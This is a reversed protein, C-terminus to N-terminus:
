PNFRALGRDTDLWLNNLSDVLISSISNGPLGDKTSYNTFHKKIPDYRDLGSGMTGFWMIGNHDEMACYIDISSLSNRNESYRLNTFKIEQPLTSFDYDKLNVISVGNTTTIYLNQKSDEYIGHLTNNCLSTTDNGNYTYHYFRETKRDFLDLGDSLNGVWLNQKSDEFVNWVNRSAIALSNSPDPLYTKFNGDKMRALGGHYTGMWLTGEHDECISIIANSSITNAKGNDYEYYTFKDSKRDLKNLGGGDTGIWIVNDKGEAFCLINNFGLKDALNANSFYRKFKTKGPSYKNIGTITGIWMHGVKDCHFCNVKNTLISYPNWKDAQLYSFTGIKKDLITIGESNRDGIWINGNTDEALAFLVKGNPGLGNISSKYLNFTNGKVKFYLMGVDEITIFLDGSSDKLMGKRKNSFKDAEPHKIQYAIFKNKARDFYNLKSSYSALWIKGDQDEAMALVNKRYIPDTDDENIEFSEAHIIGRAIEPNNYIKFRFVELSSAAVWLYGKSDILCTNLYYDILQMEDIFIVKRSFYDRKRDYMCLGNSTMVWINGNEDESLNNISSGPLSTTDKPDFYYNKFTIGDFRNLGNSTGIWVFGKSDHLITTIYGNSLGDKTTYRDFEINAPLQGAVRIFILLACLNLFLIKNIGVRIM